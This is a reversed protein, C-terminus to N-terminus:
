AVPLAVTFTSGEGLTSAVAITGGHAEVLQAAIWLGLGLGAFKRSAVAREFREFVRGQDEPAIGIGRDTVAIVATTDRRVVTVNVPSGRGYKLANSMLNTIIQDIRGRDWEGTISEATVSLPMSARDFGDRMRNAVEHVLEALDFRTRELTLRGAALRSVDLLEEVLRAMRDSQSVLKKGREVVKAITATEPLTALAQHHLTMAALPTRLEHGAVLVFEDRLRIAATAQAYLLANGIAAGAREALQEAMRLDDATYPRTPDSMVFTIAGVIHGRDAIPVIMLSALELARILRLHEDDRAGRAIMEDSIHAYLESEGTRLVRPVGTPSDPDTPYKTRFERALELKAPDAHAVAVSKTGGAEDVLEIGCWSGIKPVALAAVNRLTEEYDLSGGLLASARVLFLAREQAAEAARRADTEARYLRAREFGQACHLALFTLFSREDDDFGRDHDFTLALVGLVVGGQMVPLAATAYSAPAEIGRMRGFSAPYRAQYDALSSLWVSEGRAADVIPRGDERLSVREIHAVAEPPYNKARILLLEDGVARWLAGSKAGLAATGEEIVIEGVDDLRLATSLHATLRSLRLTRDLLADLRAQVRGLETEPPM